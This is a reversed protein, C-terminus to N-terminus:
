QVITDRFASVALSATPSSFSFQPTHYLPYRGACLNQLLIWVPNSTDKAQSSCAIELLSISLPDVQMRAILPCTSIVLCARYGYINKLDM